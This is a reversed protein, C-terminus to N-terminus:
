KGNSISIINNQNLSLGAGDAIEIVRESASLSQINVKLADNNTKTSEITQKTQQIKMSLDNNYSQIFLSSLIHSVVALIFIFAALNFKKIKRKKM